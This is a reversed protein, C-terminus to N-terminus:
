FGSLATKQKCGSSLPFLHVIYHAPTPCLPKMKRSLYLSLFSLYPAWFPSQLPTCSPILHFHDETVGGIGCGLPEPHDKGQILWQTAAAELHLFMTRLFSIHSRPGGLEWSGVKRNVEPPEKLPPLLHLHPPSYWVAGGAAKLSVWAGAHAYFTSPVLCNLFHWATVSFIDFENILINVFLISTELTIYDNLVQLMCPSHQPLVSATLSLAYTAFATNGAVVCLSFLSVSRDHRDWQRIGGTIGSERAGNLSHFATCAKMSSDFKFLIPFSLTMSFM